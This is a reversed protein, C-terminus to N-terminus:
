APRAGRLAPNTLDTPNLRYALRAAAHSLLRRVRPTRRFAVVCSCVPPLGKGFMPPELVAEETDSAGTRQQAQAAKQKLARQQSPDASARDWYGCIGTARNACRTRVRTRDDNLNGPRGTDVPMAIAHIRLSNRLVDSVFTRSLVMVDADMFLTREFPARLLAILKYLFPYSRASLPLGIARQLAAEDLEVLLDWMGALESRSRVFGATSSPTALAIPRAHAM